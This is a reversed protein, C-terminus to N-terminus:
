HVNRHFQQINQAGEHPKNSQVRGAKLWMQEIVLYNDATIPIRKYEVVHSNVLHLSTGNRKTLFAIFEPIHNYQHM